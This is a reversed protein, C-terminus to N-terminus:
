SSSTRQYCFCWSLVSVIEKLFACHRRPNKLIYPLLNQWQGGPFLIAGVQQHSDLELTHFAVSFWCCLSKAREQRITWPSKCQCCLLPAWYAKFVSSIVPLYVAFLELSSGQGKKKKKQIGSFRFFLLSPAVLFTINFSAVFSLQWGKLLHFFTFLDDTVATKSCTWVKSIAQDAVFNEGFVENLEPGPVLKDAFSLASQSVKGLPEELACSHTGTVTWVSKQAWFLLSVFLCFLLLFRLLSFIYSHQCISTREQGILCLEREGSWHM